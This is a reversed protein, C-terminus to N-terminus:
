AGEDEENQEHWAAMAEANVPGVGELTKLKEVLDVGSLEGVFDDFGTLDTIGNAELKEYNPISQFLEVEPDLQETPTQPKINKAPLLVNGQAFFTGLEAMSNIGNEEYLAKQEDPLAEWAEDKAGKVTETPPQIAIGNADVWIGNMLYAGGKITKNIVM